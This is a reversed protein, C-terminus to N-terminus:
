LSQVEKCCKKTVSVSNMEELKGQKRISHQPQHLPNCGPLSCSYQVTMGIFYTVEVEM